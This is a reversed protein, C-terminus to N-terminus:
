NILSWIEDILLDFEKNAKARDEPDDRWICYDSFSGNGAYIKKFTKSAAEIVNKKESAPINSEFKHSITGIAMSWNNESESDLLFHLRKFSKALLNFKNNINM